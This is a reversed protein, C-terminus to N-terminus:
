TAYCDLIRDLAVQTLDLTIHQQFQDFTNNVNLMAITIRHM